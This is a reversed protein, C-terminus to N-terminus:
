EEGEGGEECQGDQAVKEKPAAGAPSATVAMGFAAVAAVAAFSPIRFM